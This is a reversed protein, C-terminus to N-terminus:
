GIGLRSLEIKPCRDMVVELGAQEARLAAADDRVGIQLWIASIGLRGANRIADDIVGGAAASNRFVDVMDVKGTLDDLSAIVPQGLISGGAQGPNIPIVTYGASILREM